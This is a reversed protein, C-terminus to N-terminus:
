EFFRPTTRMTPNFSVDFTFLRVLFAPRATVAAADATPITKAAVGAAAAPEAM